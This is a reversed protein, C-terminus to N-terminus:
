MAALLYWRDTQDTIGHVHSLIRRSYDEFRRNPTCSLHLIHRDTIPSCDVVGPSIRLIKSHCLLKWNEIENDHQLRWVSIRDSSFTAKLVLRICIVRFGYGVESLPSSATASPDFRWFWPFWHFSITDSEFDKHCMSFFLVSFSRSFNEQL